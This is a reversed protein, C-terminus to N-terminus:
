LASVGADMSPEAVIARALGMIGAVVGDIKGAATSKDPAINGNPDERVTVNSAMWRAVPHNNHRLKAARVLADFAKSPESLTKYGQRMEVMTFGEADLEVGIQSANWPDYGIEILQYRNGLAVVENKIAQYDIINGATAILHGSKVWAAYDPVRHLRAREEILDEPVWFRFLLEYLGDPETPPFVLALASIDIKTSLDLGGFCPRGLLDDPKGGNPCANWREMSIWRNVQQPWLNLHYRKFTNEYAPSQQARQCEAALYEEKVSIGLNPNAKRWTEPKRWDDEEDAAAIFVFFGDDKVAGELVKVAYEHMEWGIAEPDYIGATTIIVTLPQRRAGTSTQLVDFLHRDKHAHMEDVLIGHANLGDQTASDRGLPEFKSELDVCSVNSRLVDFIGMLDPSRRVMARAADFCIRAQKEKTAISYIEAGPEGDPATLYVGIGAAVETKGNKRPIEIYAVRFRRTGDARFWGFLPRLIEDKQWDELTFVQGAWEGKHHHLYHEFFTVIREAEDERYEYGCAPLAALDREQRAMGLERFRCVDTM